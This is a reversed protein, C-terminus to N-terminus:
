HTHNAGPGAMAAMEAASIFKEGDNFGQAGRDFVYTKGGDGHDDMHADAIRKDVYNYDGSTLSSAGHGTSALNRGGYNDHAASAQPRGNTYITSGYGFKSGQKHGGYGPIIGSVVRLRRSPPSCECPQFHKGPPHAVIHSRSRVRAM